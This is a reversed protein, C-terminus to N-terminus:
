AAQTEDADATAAAPQYSSLREMAKQAQTAATFIARKDGKLVKIWDAIYPAHETDIQSPLSLADCVFSAGIEAILEEFAYKDTGFRGSFDRNNRSVHGTWHVLEHARTSYYGEPKKFDGFDPLQIFDHKSSYFARNGGHRIEAPVNALWAEAFANRQEDSLNNKREAYFHAPLGEIQEANFVTYSKLFPIVKETVEGAANEKERKVSSAYVVTNGREGKKVHAGLEAAQRYTFWFASRYGRSNAACWLVLVNVGSYPKGCSRLPFPAKNKNWPCTWSGVQHGELAEIIRNTIQSYIDQQM